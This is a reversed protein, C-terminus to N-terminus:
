IGFKANQLIGGPADHSHTKESGEAQVAKKEPHQHMGEGGDDLQPSYPLLNEAAFGDMGGGVPCGFGSLIPDDAEQSIDPECDHQHSNEKGTQCSGGLLDFKRVEGSVRGKDGNCVYIGMACIFHLAQGIGVSQSVPRVPGKHVVPVPVFKCGNFQGVSGGDAARQIHVVM